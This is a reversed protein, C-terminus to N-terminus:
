SQNYSELRETLSVGQGDCFVDYINKPMIYGDKYFCATELFLDNLTKAGVKKRGLEDDDCKIMKYGREDADNLTFVSNPQKYVCIDNTISVEYGHRVGKIETVSFFLVSDVPVLVEVLHSKLEEIVSFIQQLERKYFNSKPNHHSSPNLSSERYRELIDFNETKFGVKDYLPKLEAILQGVMMNDISSACNVGPFKKLQMKLVEELAQRLNNGCAFYDIDCEIGKFYAYAKALPTKYEVISPINKGDVRTNYMELIKWEKDQNNGDKEEAPLYQLVCDFFVRDHTMFILQYRSAYKKFLIDLVAYRNSLDLSLLFDDLVIVRPAKEIFSEELIALRLAIAVSSLKAENLYSQPRKIIANNDNYDPVAIVLELKPKTTKRSRKRIGIRQNFVAKVFNFSIDFDYNFEEHILKNAKETVFQIYNKLEFNFLSVHDQFRIYDPHYVGPYPTLGKQIYQWWSEASHSVETNYVGTLGQTFNIFGFLNQVFYDFLDMTNKNTVFYMMNYIVKYSILESSLAMLKIDNFTKTTVASNSIEGVVEAINEEKHRLTVKISSNDTTKAYRNKISEESVSVDQFYRKVSETDSKLTSHLFSHIAWYISSKGSGNEGYILIHKRDFDLTYEGSFFKFNELKIKKIKYM